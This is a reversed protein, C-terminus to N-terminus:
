LGVLDDFRADAARTMDRHTTVVPVEPSCSWPEGDGATPPATAPTTPDVDAAENCGLLPIALWWARM